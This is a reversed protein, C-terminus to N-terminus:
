NLEELINQGNIGLLEKALESNTELETYEHIESGLRFKPTNVQYKKTGIKVVPKKLNIETAKSDIQDKLDTILKETEDLLAVLAEVTAEQFSILKASLEKAELGKLDDAIILVAGHQALVATAAAIKEPSSKKAM